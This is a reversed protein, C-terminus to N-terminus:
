CSHIGTLHNRRSQARTMEEVGCRGSMSSRPLRAVEPAAADDQTADLRRRCRIHLTGAKSGSMPRGPAGSLGLRPETEAVSVQLRVPTFTCRPLSAAGGSRLQRLLTKLATRRAIKGQLQHTRRSPVEGSGDMSMAPGGFETAAISTPACCAFFM